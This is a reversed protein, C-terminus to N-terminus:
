EVLYEEEGPIHTELYAINLIHDCDEYITFDPYFDKGKLKLCDNFIEISKENDNWHNDRFMKLSKIGSNEKLKEGFECFGSDTIDNNTVDLHVLTSNAPLGESLVQIGRDRLKNGALILSKLINNKKLYDRMYIMGQFCIQNGSLDLVTLSTNNILSYIIICAGEYRIKNYKLSLKTLGSNSLFMKGFHNFFNQEPQKYAPDDLNLVKLTNNSTKLASLVAIMGDWDYRNDGVDLHTLSPMQFLLENVSLLGINGFNNSNLNLYAFRGKKNNKDKPKISKVISDVGNDTLKNGKLNLITLNEAFELLKSLISAGKDSIKNFAFDVIQLYSVSTMFAISIPQIDKDEIKSRFNESISGPFPLNVIETQTEPDTEKDGSLYAKVQPM